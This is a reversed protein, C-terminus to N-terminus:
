FQKKICQFNYNHTYVNIECVRQTVSEDVLGVTFFLLHCDNSLTVCICTIYGRCLCMIYNCTYTCSFM